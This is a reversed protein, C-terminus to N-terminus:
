WYLFWCSISVCSTLAVTAVKTFHFSRVSRMSDACLTLVYLEGNNLSLVLKETDIFTLQAADLTM